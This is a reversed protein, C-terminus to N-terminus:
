RKKKIFEAVQWIFFKDNPYDEFSIGYLNQLRNIINRRYAEIVEKEEEKTLQPFWVFFREPKVFNPKNKYRGQNKKPLDIFRILKHGPIEDLPEEFDYLSSLNTLLAGEIGYVEEILKYSFDDIKNDPAFQIKMKTREYNCGFKHFIIYFLFLSTTVPNNSIEWGSAVCGRLVKSYGQPIIFPEAWGEM